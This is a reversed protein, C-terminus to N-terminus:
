ATARIQVSPLIVTRSRPGISPGHVGFHWIDSKALSALTVSLSAKKGAVLKSSGAFLRAQEIGVYDLNGRTDFVGSLSAGKSVRGGSRLGAGFDPISRLAYQEKLFRGTAPDQALELPLIFLAGDTVLVVRAGEEIGAKDLCIVSRPQAM